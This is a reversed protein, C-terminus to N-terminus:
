TGTKWLYKPSIIVPRLGTIVKGNNEDRLLLAFGSSVGSISPEKLLMKRAIKTAAQWGKENSTNSEERAESTIINCLYAKETNGSTHM